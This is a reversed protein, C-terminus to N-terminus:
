AVMNAADCHAQLFRVACDAGPGTWAAALEAVLARQMRLVDTVAVGAARLEACDRDLAHLDLGDESDYWGRIQLPRSTLDPQQYGLMQCARVYRQTREVASRGEALRGPVDLREAVIVRDAGRCVFRRRCLPGRRGAFRRRDRRGRPVVAVV